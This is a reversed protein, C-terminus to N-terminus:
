SPLSPPLSPPLPGLSCATLLFEQQRPTVLSHTHTTGERCTRHESVQPPSDHSSVGRAHLQGWHGRSTQGQSDVHKQPLGARSQAMHPSSCSWSLQKHSNGHLYINALSNASVLLSFPDKRRPYSHVGKGRGGRRERTEERGGERGGEKGGEERGGERGGEERGGERGLVEESPSVAPRHSLQGMSQHDHGLEMGERAKSKATAEIWFNVSRKSM